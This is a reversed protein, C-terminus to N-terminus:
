GVVDPPITIRQGVQGLVEPRTVEFGTSAILAALEPLSVNLQNYTVRVAYDHVEVHVTVQQGGITQPLAVIRVEDEFLFGEFGLRQSLSQGAAAWPPDGGGAVTLRFRVTAVPDQSLLALPSLFAPNADAIRWWKRPQQYYKFALHDLREGEEVTHQFTGVVDPLLRLDKSTLSRGQADVTVLDPLKRYRSIRSFM